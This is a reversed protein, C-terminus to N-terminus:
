PREEEEIHQEQQNHPDGQEEQLQCGPLGDSLAADPHPLEDGGPQCPDSVGATHHSVSM